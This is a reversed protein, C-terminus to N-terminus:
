MWLSARIDTISAMSFLPVFRVTFDARPVRTIVGFSSTKAVAKRGHAYTDFDKYQTDAYAEIEKIYPFGADNDTFVVRIDDTTVPEDLEFSVIYDGTKENLSSGSAVTVFEDDVKVQVDFGLVYTDLCIQSTVADNFYLTVKKIDFAKDLTVGCYANGVFTSAFWSFSDYDIRGDNIYSIDSVGLHDLVSSAYPEGYIAVNGGATSQRREPTIYDFLFECKKGDAITAVIESAYAPKGNMKAYTIRVAQVGTKKGGLDFMSDTGKEAQTSATITGVKQWVGDVMIEADIDYTCAEAIETLNVGLSEIDYAKDFEAVIWEGDTKSASVWATSNLSDGALAPYKGSSTSSAYYHGSLAANTSLLAGDHLDIDPIKGTKGWIEVEYIRPVDWSHGCGNVGFDTLELKIAKTNVECAVGDVMVTDPMDFHLKTRGPYEELQAQDHNRKSGIEVWIGNILAKLTYRTNNATTCGGQDVCAWIDISDVLKYGKNQGKFTFQIWQMDTAISQDGNHGPSDPMWYNLHGSWSMHAEIDGTTSGNILSKPHSSENWYSSYKLNSTRAVNEFEPAEEEEAFVCLTLCPILMLVCLIISLFKKM